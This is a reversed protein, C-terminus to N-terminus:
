RESASPIAGRNMSDRRQAVPSNCPSTLHQPQRSPPAPLEGLYTEIVISDRVVERGRILAEVSGGSSDLALVANGWLLTTRGHGADDKLAVTFRDVFNMDMLKKM